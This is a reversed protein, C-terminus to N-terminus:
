AFKRVRNLWGRKFVVMEPRREIIRLYFDERCNNIAKRLKELNESAAKKSNARTKSGVRGDVSTSIGYENLGRQLIRDANGRGHNVCMDFYIDRIGKPLLDVDNAKYFHVWYYTIATEVTLDRITQATAEPYTRQYTGLTIGFNTVGGPDAPHNVYGGEHKLTGLIIKKAATPILFDNKTKEPTEKALEQGAVPPEATFSKFFETLAELLQKLFM